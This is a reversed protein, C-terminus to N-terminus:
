SNNQRLYLQGCAADINSGKEMRLTARIKNEVLKHYFKQCTAIDPRQWDLSEVPNYPILNIHAHNTKAIKILRLLDEKSDNINKIMIYELTVMKNKKDYFNKVAGLLEELRWKKNIPMIKDRIDNTTAHMSVALRCNIQEDNSILDIKPVIGCTSVTVRRGSFGLCNDDNLVILANKLNEFNNLPEGMGMFVINDFAVRETKTQKFNEELFDWVAFLQGIIEATTLNRKFGALGSACFKCGCACGVQSSVCVTKRFNDKTQDTFLIVTEIFSADELKLLLKISSDGIKGSIKEVSPLYFSFNNQLFNKLDNPLNTMNELKFVKKKYIWDIVQKARFKSFKNELLVNQMAELNFSFINQKTKESVQELSNLANQM